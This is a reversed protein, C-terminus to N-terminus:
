LMKLIIKTQRKAAKLREELEAKERELKQILEKQKEITEFFSPLTLAELPPPERDFQAYHRALHVYVSRRDAAPIDVGGRAGLLAQM